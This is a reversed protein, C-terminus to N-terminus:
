FMALLKLDSVFSSPSYNKIKKLLFGVSKLQDFLRHNKSMDWIELKGKKWIPCKLPSWANKVSKEKLKVYKISLNLKM